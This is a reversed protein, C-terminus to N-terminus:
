ILYEYINTAIFNYAKEYRASLISYAQGKQLIPQMGLHSKQALIFFKLYVSVSRYSTDEVSRSPRAAISNWIRSNVPLQTPGIHSIPINRHNRDM